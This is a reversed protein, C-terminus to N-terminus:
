EVPKESFLLCEREREREREIESVCVSEREGIREERVLWYERSIVRQQEGVRCAIKM